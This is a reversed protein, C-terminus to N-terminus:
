NRGPGTFLRASIHAKDVLPDSNTLIVMVIEQLLKAMEIIFLWNVVKIKISIERARDIADQKNDTHIFDGFLRRSLDM